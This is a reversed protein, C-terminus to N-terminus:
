PPTLPPKMIYGILPFAYCMLDLPDFVGPMLPTLQLLETLIGLLPIISVWILRTIRKENRFIHNMLMIYSITWLGDPLSYLVFESPHIDSVSARLSDVVNGLGLADALMFGLHGRSRFLLYISAGCLFLLLAILISIREFHKKVM